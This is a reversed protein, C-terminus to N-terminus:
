RATFGGDVVVESGTMFSAADSALFVIVEAIETPQGTRGIPVSDIAALRRVPDDLVEATLPTLVQGPHVSNARIGNAAAACELATAKTFMRVAGKSACYAGFGRGGVLGYVSSINVISSRGSRALLPLSYKTALFVSDINVALTDRWDALTSHAITQYRGYGANNVLVDLRGYASDIQQIARIWADELTVDFVISL